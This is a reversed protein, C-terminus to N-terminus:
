GGHRELTQFAISFQEGGLCVWGEACGEKRKEIENERKGVWIRDRREKGEKKRKMAERIEEEILEAARRQSRRWLEKTHFLGLLM